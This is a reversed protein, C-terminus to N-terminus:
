KRPSWGIERRDRDFRVALAVGGNDALIRISDSQQAIRARPVVIGDLTAATAQGNIVTITFRGAPDHGRFDIRSVATPEANHLALTSALMAVVVYAAATRQMVIINELRMRTGAILADAIEAGVFVIRRFVAREALRERFVLLMEDRFSERFSRPFAALAMEFSREYISTM